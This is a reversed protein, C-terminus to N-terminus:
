QTGFTRVGGDSFMTVEYEVPEPGVSARVPATDTVMLTHEIKEKGAGTGDPHIEVTVGAAGLARMAAQAADAQEFYMRLRVTIDSQDLAWRKTASGMISIDSKAQVESSEWERLEAVTDSDFVVVGNKGAIYSM